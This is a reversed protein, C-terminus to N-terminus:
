VNNLARTEKIIISEEIQWSMAKVHSGLIKMWYEPQSEKHHKYLPNRGEGIKIPLEGEWYSNRLSALHRDSRVYGSHATEGVYRTM